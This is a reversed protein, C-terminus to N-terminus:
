LLWNLSCSLTNKIKDQNSRMEVSLSERSDKISKELGALLQIIAIRFETESMKSLDMDMWDTASFIVDPEKKQQSNKKRTM